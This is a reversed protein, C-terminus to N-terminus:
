DFLNVLFNETENKHEIVHEDSRDKLHVGSLQKRRSERLLYFAREAAEKFSLGMPRVNSICNRCADTLGVRPAWTLYLGLSDPSSLGPREGIMVLVAKARLSEAVEDGIAVRGQQVVSLPALRWEQGDQTLEELLAALFPTVNNQVAKSSLGDVVVLALDYEKGPGSCYTSLLDRMSHQLRRGLDPRQLYHMRDKAQSALLIPASPFTAQRITALQALLATVDLPTHVADRAQAHALQFELMEETPLSVGARGLGIRASTFQRLSQWPNETVSATECVKEVRSTTSEHRQTQKM